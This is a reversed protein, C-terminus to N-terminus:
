CLGFFRPGSRHAGTIYRAIASLSTFRKGDMAFGNEVVEIQYTRGNWERILQSGTKVQGPAPKGAAIKELARKTRVSVGGLLQCQLDWILVRKMFPVSLHKPPPRRFVKRWRELCASRDFAEIRSIGDQLEDIRKNTM